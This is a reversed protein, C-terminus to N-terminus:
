LFILINRTLDSCKTNFDIIDYLDTISIDSYQRQQSIDFLFYFIITEIVNLKIEIKKEIFLKIKDLIITDPINIEYSYNLNHITSNYLLNHLSHNM